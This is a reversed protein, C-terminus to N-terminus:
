SPEDPSRKRIIYNSIFIYRGRADQDLPFPANLVESYFVNEVFSPFGPKNGLLDHVIYALDHADEYAASKAIMQVPRIEIGSETDYGPSGVITVCAGLSDDPEKGLYLDIDVELSSNAAIYDLIDLELSM